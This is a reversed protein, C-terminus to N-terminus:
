LLLAVQWWKHLPLHSQERSNKQFWLTEQSQCSKYTYQSPIARHYHSHLMQKHFELFLFLVHLHARVVDSSDSNVIKGLWYRFNKGFVIAISKRNLLWRCQIGNGLKCSRTSGKLLILEISPSRKSPNSKNLNISKSSLSMLCTRWLKFMGILLSVCKWRIGQM